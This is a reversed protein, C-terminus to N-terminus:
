NMEPNIPIGFTLKPRADILGQLEDRLYEWKIRDDEAMEIYNDIDSDRDEEEKGAEAYLHDLYGEHSDLAYVLADVLSDLQEDTLTFHPTRIM